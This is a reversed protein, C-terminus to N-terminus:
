LSSLLSGQTQSFRTTKYEPMFRLNDTGLHTKEIM